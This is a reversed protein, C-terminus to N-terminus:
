HVTSRASSSSGYFEPDNDMYVFVPAGDFNEEAVDAIWEEAYEKSHGKDIITIVALDYNYALVERGDRMTTGIIAADLGDIAVVEIDRM